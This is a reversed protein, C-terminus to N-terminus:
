IKFILIQHINNKEKGANLRTSSLAPSKPSPKSSKAQKKESKQTTKKTSGM